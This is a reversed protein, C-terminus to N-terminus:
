GGQGGLRLRRTYSHIEQFLKLTEGEDEIGSKAALECRELLAALGASADGMEVILPRLDELRTERPLGLSKALLSRFRHVATDLAAAAADKRAYLDGVTEVFEIPSLRSAVAPMIIPGSRRSYTLIVALALLTTQLLAWPLPTKRLYSWLGAREGHFYEDWLIRSNAAVGLSNLLLNLNSAQAIGYNTLPFADAWWIITGEGLSSAVVVGGDGDGYYELAGPNNGKWRVDTRFAVSGARRSIPGALQPSFEKSDVPPSAAASPLVGPLDLLAASQSGTAIVRGGRRIFGQIAIKEETSAPYFPAALILVMHDAQEPLQTPPSTWREVKYGLDQLLLYAAKAGENDTSYSSPLGGGVSGTPPSLLASALTAALLILGAVILLLRDDGALAVRM